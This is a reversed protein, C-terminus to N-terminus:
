ADQPTKLSNLKYYSLFIFISELLLIIWLHLINFDNLFFFTIVCFLNIFYSFAHFFYYDYMNKLPRLYTYILLSFSLLLFLGLFIINKYDGIYLFKFFIFYILFFSGLFAFCLSIYNQFRNHVDVNFAIGYAIILFVLINIGNKMTYMMGFLSSIYLFILGLYKLLKRSNQFFHIKVLVSFILLFFLFGTLSFILSISEFIYSLYFSIFLFSYICLYVLLGKDSGSTKLIYKESSISLIFFTLIFISNLLDVFSFFNNGTFFIYAYSFIYALSFLITNIKIFDKFIFFKNTVLFLSLIVINIFLVFFSFNVVDFNKFILYISTYFFLFWIYYLYDKFFVRSVWSVDSWSVNLSKSWIGRFRSFFYLFFLSLVLFISSEIAINWFFSDFFYLQKSSNSLVNWWGSLLYFRYFIFSYLATVLFLLVSM